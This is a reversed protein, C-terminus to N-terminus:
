KKENITQYEKLIDDNSITINRYPVYNKAWAGKPHHTLGVLEWGEKNGFFDHIEKLLISEERKEDLHTANYFINSIPNNGFFNLKKYLSPLVPGYTWAEFYEENILPENNRGLYVMHALYLLKQLKLHTLSWGSLECLLKAAEISSLSM